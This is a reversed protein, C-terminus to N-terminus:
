VFLLSFMGEEDVIYVDAFFYDIHAFPEGGACIAFVFSENREKCEDNIIGIDVCDVDGATSGSEFTLQGMNGVYDAGDISLHTPQLLDCM